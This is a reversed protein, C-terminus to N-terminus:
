ETREWIATMEDYKRAGEQSFKKMNLFFIGYTRAGMVSPTYSIFDRYFPFIWIPFHHLQRIHINKFLSVGCSTWKYTGSYLTTHSIHTNPKKESYKRLDLKPKKALTHKYLILYSNSNIIINTFTNLADIHPQM